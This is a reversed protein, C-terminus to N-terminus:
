SYSGDKSPWNLQATKQGSQSDSFLKHKVDQGNPFTYSKLKLLHLYLQYLNLKM